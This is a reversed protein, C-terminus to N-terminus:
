RGYIMDREKQWRRRGLLRWAVRAPLPLTRLFAAREAAPVGDLIWGLHILMRDKPISKHGREALAEWEAVTLHAEILPLVYREEDAMHERLRADLETLTATLLDRDAPRAHARFVPVQAQVRELLEHVREHQEEARLVFSREISVRDLLKPWILEDEGTHHHHLGTTLEDVATCLVGARATDGDAVAAILVPLDGFLRRFLNHIVIMGSTDPRPAPRSRTPFQTSTM